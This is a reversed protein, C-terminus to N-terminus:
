SPMAVCPRRSRGLGAAWLVGAGLLVSGSPEPVVAVGWALDDIIAFRDSAVRIGTIGGPDEWGVFRRTASPLSLDLSGVVRPGGRFEVTEQYDVNGSFNM